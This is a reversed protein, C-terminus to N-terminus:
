SLDKSGVAFNWFAITKLDEDLFDYSDESIEGEAWYPNEDLLTELEEDNFGILDVDHSTEMDLLFPAPTGFVVINGETLDDKLNDAATDVPMQNVELDLNLDNVINQTASEGTGGPMGTTVSTFDSLSDINNKELTNIHLMSAYMPFLARIKDHEE